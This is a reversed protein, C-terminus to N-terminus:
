WGRSYARGKRAFVEIVGAVRDCCAPPEGLRHEPPDAGDLGRTEAPHESRRLVWGHVEAAVLRRASAPMLSVSSAARWSPSCRISRAVTPSVRSARRVSLVAEPLSFYHRPATEQGRMWAGLMVGPKGELMPEPMSEPMLSSFILSFRRRLIAARWPTCITLLRRRSGREM